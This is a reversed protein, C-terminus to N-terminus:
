DRAPKCQDWSHTGGSSEERRAASVHFAATLRPVAAWTPQFAATQRFLTSQPRVAKTSIRAASRPATRALNRLALM